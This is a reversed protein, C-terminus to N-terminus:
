GPLVNWREDLVVLLNHCFHGVMAPWLSESRHRLWGLYMGLLFLPVLMALVWHIISFAVATVLIADFPKMVERLSTHIIGRFALEEVVAPQVCILLVVWGWGYGHDFFLSTYKFDIGVLDQIWGGFISIVAAIPWAALVPLAVWGPSPIRFLRFAERCATLGWGLTVTLTFLDMAMMIHIATGGANAAVASGIGAVLWLAYFGLIGKVPGTSGRVDHLIQRATLRRPPRRVGERVPAGCGPCFNADERLLGGCDGCAPPEPPPVPAEEEVPPPDSEM